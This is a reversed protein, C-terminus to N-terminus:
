EGALRHALRHYREHTGEGMEESEVRDFGEALEQQDTPSLIQDAMPYLINDEKEIHARLLAVYALLNTAITATAARDGSAAGSIAGAVAGVLARGQEHDHLMVGIPGFERPMGREVMRAFLLNEEKGHHCRDAFARIFDVIEEIVPLHPEAGAQIARAEREAGQLVLLIVQHEHKLIQTPTM